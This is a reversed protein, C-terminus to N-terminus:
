RLIRSCNRRFSSTRFCQRKMPGINPINVTGEQSVTYQINFEVALDMPVGGLRIEFTDGPRITAMAQASVREAAGAILLVLLLFIRM